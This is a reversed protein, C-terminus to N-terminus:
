CVQQGVVSPCGCDFVAQNSGQDRNCCYGCELQNAGAQGADEVGDRRIKLARRNETPKRGGEPRASRPKETRRLGIRLGRFGGGEVRDEM